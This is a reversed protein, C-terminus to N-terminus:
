RRTQYAKNIQQPVQQQPKSSAFKSENKAWTELRRELDWTKQLEQNFKTNSKNPETWYKYFDKLMERGYVKLYPELTSAFKLKRDEINNNDKNIITNNPLTEKSGGQLTEKSGVYLKKVVQLNVKYRNFTVGNLVVATKIILGNECLEKLSKMVTPRSCNLWKCLYNISGTFESEGDQCFGNIIAFTLLNNGALKLETLMWGQIVIYNDKM